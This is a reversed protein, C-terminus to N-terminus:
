RNGLKGDEGTVGSLGVSVFNGEQDHVTGLTVVVGDKLYARGLGGDKIESMEPDYTFWGQKKMEVDFFALTKEPADSTKYVNVGYPKGEARASLVRQSAPVRPMEAFDDGPVDKGNEPMMDFLNFKEETWATLVLTKGSKSKKSYVYRMQGLAGLEGTEAFATLAERTTAKTEPGKVFCLVTGETEDGGRMVGSSAVEPASEIPKGGNEKVLETWGASPQGPNTKCLQEYRDLVQKPSDASISSGVFMPQGNIVLRNVDHHHAGALAAMKRGLQLSQQQMEARANRVSCYGCLVTLVGFYGAARLLGKLHKKKEPSRRSIWIGM